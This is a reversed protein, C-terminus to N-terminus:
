LVLLESMAIPTANNLQLIEGGLQKVQEALSKALRWDGGLEASKRARELTGQARHIDRAIVAREHKTLQNTNTSTNPM